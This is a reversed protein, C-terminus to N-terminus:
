GPQTQLFPTPLPLWQPQQSYNISCAIKGNERKSLVSAMAPIQTIITRRECFISSYVERSTSLAAHLASIRFSAKENRSRLENCGPLSHPAARANNSPLNLCSRENGTPWIAITSAGPKVGCSTQRGLLGQPRLSRSRLRDHTFSTSRHGRTVRVFMSGVQRHPRVSETACWVERHM